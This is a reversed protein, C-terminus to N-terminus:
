SRTWEVKLEGKTGFRFREDLFGTAFLVLNQDYYAPEKGYLGSSPDFHASLRIRQQAAAKERDPFARLYPLAAASFGVPGDQELPIGQDSVKEPPAGHNAVYSGMGAVASLMETRTNGTEDLMGAWLYVRIADYSGVPPPLDKSPQKPDPAVAGPNTAPYFGDSPVYDVWDM